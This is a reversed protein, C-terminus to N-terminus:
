DNPQFSIDVRFPASVPVGNETAPKFRWSQVAAILQPTQGPVTDRMHVGKVKGDAGVTLDLRVTVAQSVTIRPLPQYEPVPRTSRVVRAAERAPFNVREQENEDRAASTMPPPMPRQTRSAAPAAPRGQAYAPGTISRPDVMQQQARREQEARQALAAYEVSSVATADTRQYETPVGEAPAPLPASTIPQQLAAPDNVPVLTLDSRRPTGVPEADGATETIPKPANEPTGDSNIFAGIAFSAILLAIFGGIMMGHKKWNREKPPVYAAAAPQASFATVPATQDQNCYPCIKAYPDIDRSCRVCPKKDSM